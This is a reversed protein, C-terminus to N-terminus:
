KDLLEKTDRAIVLEENTPIVLVKVKSAPITIEIEEGRISNKSDDIEVGLWKLYNCIEQRSDKSNEGLGATFVIVDVGNLTSTYEGIYKAVRYHFSDLAIQARKNGKAAADEIDRFDSSVGSLGLVGSKKNMLDDVEKNSLNEKEMIFSVVAPDMDGCRTGMILGELPTFGMSTDISKGANIAAVSGGNGLHCTIIKLDEINKGLLTAARQSVYKHSTGHFGYRRIKHKEYLEYPIGYLFAKEPMTQHFATDFVVVQSINPILEACAKIGMLNAPNHLPALAICEEIAKIVEDNVIASKTFFEGGHVVRHGVANVEKIDSIVGYNPNLLSDIVLKIADMHNAMNIDAEFKEKGKHKIKGDIGIRECLGSALVNENSMDILQYKLSSSGCNLVLVKM